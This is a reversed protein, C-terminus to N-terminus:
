GSIRGDTAWCDIEDKMGCDMWDDMRRDTQREMLRDMLGDMGGDTLENMQGSMRVDIM